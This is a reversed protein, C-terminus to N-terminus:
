RATTVQRYRTEIASFGVFVALGAAVAALVALGWERGALQLLETDTGYAKGPDSQIAAVILFAGIPGFVLSRASIGIVGAAAVIHRVTPPAHRLDLGEEFDHEVAERIQVTCIAIVVLGVAILIVRGGPLDLIEASRKQEQQQSGVNRDGSLFSLPVFALILYFLGQAATMCRRIASVTRDRIAGNLRGIGFVVFGFGVLGIAVKGLFARSVLSLAGNANAQSRPPGNLLAVRVTLATLIAYFGTRGALGLRGLLTIDRAPNRRAQHTLSRLKRSARRKANTVTNTTSAAV